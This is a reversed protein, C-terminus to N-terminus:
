TASLAMLASRIKKAVAANSTRGSLANLVNLLLDRNAEAVEAATGGSSTALKVASTKFVPKRTGNEDLAMDGSELDVSINDTSFSIILTDLVKGAGDSLPVKFAVLNIEGSVNRAGQITVGELAEHNLATEALDALTMSEGSAVLQRLRPEFLDFLENNSIDFVEEMLNLIAQARATMEATLPLHTDPVSIGSGGDKGAMLEEIVGVLTVVAKQQAMKGKDPLQEKPIGGAVSLMFVAVAECVTPHIKERITRLLIDLVEPSSVNKDDGNTSLANDAFGVEMKDEAALIQILPQEEMGPLNFHVNLKVARIYEGGEGDPAKSAYHHLMFLPLPEDQTSVELHIAPVQCSLFPNIADLLTGIPVDGSLNKELTASDGGLAETMRGLLTSLNDLVQRSILLNEDNM